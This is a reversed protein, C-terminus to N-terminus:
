VDKPSELAEMEYVLKEWRNNQIEIEDNIKRLEGQHSELLDSKSFVEPKSLENELRVKEARLVETRNEAEQLEKTLKSLSM